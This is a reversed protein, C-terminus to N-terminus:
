YKYNRKRSQPSELPKTIDTAERADIVVSIPVSVIEESSDGTAKKSKGKKNRKKKNNKSESPVAEKKVEPQKVPEEEKVPIYEGNRIVAIVKQKDSFVREPKDDRKVEKPQEEVKRTIKTSKIVRANKFVISTDYEKGFYVPKKAAQSVSPKPSPSISDNIFEAKDSDMDDVFGDKDKHEAKGEYAENNTVSAAKSTGEGFLEKILNTKEEMTFSDDANKDDAPENVFEENSSTEASAFENEISESAAAFEDIVTNDNTSATVNNVASETKSEIVNDSVIEAENILDTKAVTDTAPVEKVEETKKEEFSKVEEKRDSNMSGFYTPENKIIVNEPKKEETQETRVPKNRYRLSKRPNLKSHDVAGYERELEAFMEDELEEPTKEKKIKSYDYQSGSDKIITYSNDNESRTTSGFSNDEKKIESNATHQSTYGKGGDLDDLVHDMAGKRGVNSLAFGDGFLASSTGRVIRDDRKAPETLSDTTGHFGVGWRNVIARSAAQEDIKSLSDDDDLDEEFKAFEDTDEKVDSSIEEEVTEEEAEDNRVDDEFSINEESVEETEEEIEEVEEETETEAEAETEETEDLEEVDAEEEIEEEVEAEETEEFEEVEEEAEAEETEEFEEVEEEAETVESEEEFEEVEEEVEEEAEETEEEFEEVEEEAEAVETEEFEEVEEEAETVESEEEFEEVEEEAETVESEEEFEEVEEEVEAVETEEFEEVEEEAETVESEEEFEEVEEEAEAEETEEFEETEEEVETEEAEEFEASEETTEEAVEDIVEEFENEATEDVVEEIVEEETVEEAVDSEGNNKKVYEEYKNERKEGSYESKKVFVIGAESDSEKNENDLGEPRSIVTDFPNISYKSYDANSSKEIEEKDIYREHPNPKGSVFDPEFTEVRSFTVPAADADTNENVKERSIVKEAENVGEANRKDSFNLVKAFMSKINSRVGAGQGRTFAGSNGIIGHSKRSFSTRAGPLSIEEDNQAETEDTAEETEESKEEVNESAEETEEEETDVIEFNFNKEGNQLDANLLYKELIEQAEAGSITKTHSGVGTNEESDEIEESEVIEEETEAAESEEEFEETEEETEAVETEEFEETEVETEAVETEEFEETEVETEATETEEEFESEEDTEETEDEEEFEETEEEAEAAETEEEFEETEEEAEAVESEEEFEETEEETEAAEVEEEFEVTEEIEEEFEVTEASEDEATEEFEATDTLEESAEESVTEEEVIEEEVTEKAAEATKLAEEKAKQRKLKEAEMEREFAEVDFVPYGDVYTEESFPDASASQSADTTEAAEESVEESEYTETTESESEDFSEEQVEDELSSFEDNNVDDSVEEAEESVEAEEAFEEETVTEEEFEEEAVAEEFEETAEEAVTEEEFSEEEAVAEEEFSEEEAVAEEEFTEEESIEEEVAYEDEFVAEETEFESVEEEESISEESEYEETQEFEEEAEAFEEETEASEESQEFEEAEAFEETEFTEESVEEEASEESVEEFSVADFDEAANEEAATEDFAVETNEEYTVYEENEFSVQEGEYATENEEFTVNENEDEFVAPAPAVEQVYSESGNRSSYLASGTVPNVEPEPDVTIPITKGPRAAIVVSDNLIVPEAFEDKPEAKKIPTMMPRRMRRASVHEGSNDSEKNEIKKQVPVANGRYEGEGSLLASNYSKESSGEPLDNINWVNDKSVVNNLINNVAEFSTKMVEDISSFRHQGNRGVCYLNGFGNLFKKIYDLSEYGDYYAPFAKGYKVKNYGILSEESPIIGLKTLDKVIAQKWDRNSMSWYYDGENCYYNMGLYYHNENRIMYPSFNNYVQIRSVKVNPNSIYIVSDATIDGITKLEPNDNKWNFQSLEVCVGVMSRYSLNEAALTINGEVGEMGLILDRIPMSSIVYDCHVVFEDGDACCKVSTIKNQGITLSTVKCNKHISGGMEIFRDAVNEWIQYAGYKPYYYRNAYPAPLKESDRNAKETSIVPAILSKESVPGLASNIRAPEKGWIKTLYEELFKSYLQKGYKGIYYDELNNTKSKFVSGGLQSFGSKISTAFGLNKIADKNFYVPNDYYKTDKLIRMNKERSLLVDDAEEPDPGGNRIKCYRDLIKDDKSPTGQAPLISNWFKKVAPNNSVYMHGGADLVNEENEFRACLGGVVSAEEIITVDYDSSKSLLDYGATLGAPGAGIIIVKKM